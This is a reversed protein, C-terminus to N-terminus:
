HNRYAFRVHSVRTWNGHSEETYPGPTEISLGLDKFLHLSNAGISGPFEKYVLLADYDSSWQDLQGLSQSVYKFFPFPPKEGM